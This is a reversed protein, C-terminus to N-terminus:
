VTPPWCDSSQSSKVQATVQNVSPRQFRPASTSYPASTMGGGYLAPGGCASVGRDPSSPRVVRLDDRGICVYRSAKRWSPDGPSISGLPMIAPYVRESRPFASSASTMGGLSSPHASSASTTGGGMFHSAEALPSAVILPRRIHPRRPPRRDGM